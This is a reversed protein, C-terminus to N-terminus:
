RSVLHRSSQTHGEEVENMQSQSGDDATIEFATNGARSTQAEPDDEDVRQSPGPNLPNPLQQQQRQKITKRAGQRTRRLTSTINQAAQEWMVSALKMVRPIFNAPIDSVGLCDLKAVVYRDGYIFLAVLFAIVLTLNMTVLLTSMLVDAAHTTNEDNSVLGVYFTFISVLLSSAELINLTLHNFPVAILHVALALILVGLAMVGQLNSGLPYAFVIIAGMSAKRILIIVEWFVVRQDYNQYIFGYTNLVDQELLRNNTKEYLLLILLYVPLGILFLIIGPIGLIGALRAHNKEFCRINTDETWYRDRAISYQPYHTNEDMEKSDLEICSVTGMLEESISQYSFFVVVLFCIVLRSKLYKLCYARTNHPIRTKFYWRLAFFLMVLLMLGVPFAIRVIVGYISQNELSQDFMCTMPTATAGNSFGAVSNMTTLMNQVTTTWDVNINVALSTVQFFNVFIKITESVHQAAIIYDVSTKQTPAVQVPAASPQNVSAQSQLDDDLSRSAHISSQPPTSSTSPQAPPPAATAPTNQATLKLIYEMDKMSVLASRITISLLVLQWFALLVVVTATRSRSGCEECTKGGTRGYGKECAGCLPGEYGEACQPYEDNTIDAGEADDQLRSLFDQKRLFHQEELRQTRNKYNCAEQHFCEHLITSFPSSHWYKEEPVLSSGGNCRGHTPCTECQRRETSFSFSEFGCFECISSATNNIEGLLCSRVQIESVVSRISQRPPLFELHYNGAPALIALASFNVVGAEAIADIQGALISSGNRDLESSVHVSLISDAIGASIRQDMQDLIELSIVPLPNSQGSSHNSILLGTSENVLPHQVRLGVALSAINPGFGGPSVSNQGLDDSEPLRVLPLYPVDSAEETAASYFVHTLNSAFIGGGAFQASNNNFSLGRLRLARCPHMSLLSSTSRNNATCEEVWNVSDEETSLFLGGGVAASNNEFRSETLEISVPLRSGLGSLVLCVAGGGGPHCPDIGSPDLLAQDLPAENSSTQMLRRGLPGAGENSNTFIVRRTFSSSAQNFSFTSYSALFRNRVPHSARYYIAGGTTASNNIFSNNGGSASSSLTFIINSSEDTHGREIRVNELNELFLAGGQQAKNDRLQTDQLTFEGGAKSDAICIAGGHRQAENQIFETSEFKVSGSGLGFVAGGDFALNGEFISLENEKGRVADLGAGNTIFLAGGVLAENRSFNCRPLSPTNVNRLVIAGGGQTANNRNFECRSILVRASVPAVVHLAGGYVARNNEFLSTWIEFQSRETTSAVFIAGGVELDQEQASTRSMSSVNNGRFTCRRIETEVNNSLYLAGGAPVASNHRFISTNIFVSSFSQLFLAGGSPAPLPFQLYQNAELRAGQAITLDQPSRGGTLVRNRVFQTNVISLRGQSDDLFPRGYIAGGSDVASNDRFASNAIQLSSGLFHIAGGASASNNVFTCGEIEAQVSSGIFIAGAGTRSEFSASNHAFTVNRFRVELSVPESTATQQLFPNNNVGSSVSVPTDRCDRIVLHAFEVGNSSSM